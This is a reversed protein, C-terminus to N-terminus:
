MGNDEKELAALFPNEAPPGNTAIADQIEKDMEVLRKYCENCVHQAKDSLGPLKIENKWCDACVCKGCWRCHHRRTFFTFQKQCEMCRPALDNPIWVPAFGRVELQARTINNEKMMKDFAQLINVKAEKSDMNCRFSKEKQRIDIANIFPENDDVSTILYEGSMYLKNMKWESVVSKECVLLADNFLVLYRNNTYSRSFKTAHGQFHMRRKENGLVNFDSIKEKLESMAVFEDFEDIKTDVASIADCVEKLSAQLKPYEPFEPPTSKILEQVLLRYRPPRQIPTILVAEVTDHINQEFYELVKNFTPNAQREPKISDSFEHYAYIYEFYTNILPGFGEFADAVTKGPTNIIVTTHLREVFGKSVKEVDQLLNFMDLLKPQSLKLEGKENLQQLKKTCLSNVMQLGMNYTHETKVIEDVVMRRRKLLDANSKKSM